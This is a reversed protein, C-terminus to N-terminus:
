FINKRTTSGNKKHLKITVKKSPKDTRNVPHIKLIPKPKFDKKEIEQFFFYVGNLGHFLSISQEIEFDELLPLKKFFRKMIRDQNETPEYHKDERDKDQNDEDQEDQEDEKDEEDELNENKNEDDESDNDSESESDSYITEFQDNFPQIDKHELDVLYLFADKYIYKSDKILTKQQQILQLVKGKPIIKVFNKKPHDSLHIIEKSVKEIYNNLNVFIYYCHIKDMFDKSCEDDIKLLEEEQNIWSM